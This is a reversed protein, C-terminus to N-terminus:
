CHGGINTIPQIMYGLAKRRAVGRRAQEKLIRHAKEADIPEPYIIGEIDGRADQVVCACTPEGDQFVVALALGLPHFFQRNAEQLYGEDMFARLNMPKVEVM